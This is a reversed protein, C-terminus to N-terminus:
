SRRGAFEDAHLSMFERVSMAPRDRAGKELRKNVHLLKGVLM